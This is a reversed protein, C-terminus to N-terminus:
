PMGCEALLGRLTTDMQVSYAKMKEIAKRARAQREFPELKCSKAYTKLLTSIIHRNPAVHHRDTSVNSDRQRRANSIEELRHFLHDAHEVAEPIHSALKMWAHLSANFAFAVQRGDFEDLALLKDLYLEIELALDNSANTKGDLVRSLVQIIAGYMYFSPKCQQFGAKYRDTCEKLYSRALEDRDSRQSHILTSIVTAYSAADPLVSFSSSENLDNMLQLISCARDYPDNRGSQAKNSGHTKRSESEWASLVVNFSALDPKASENGGEQYDLLMKNLVNEARSPNGAQAWAHILATYAKNSPRVKSKGKEYRNVMLDFINQARLAASEGKSRGWCAITSTFAQETPEIGTEDPNSDFRRILELLISEARQPANNAHINQTRSLTTIVTYFDDMSLEFAPVEGEQHRQQYHLLSKLIIEARDADEANKGTSIMRLLNSVLSAKSPSESTDDGGSSANKNREVMESLFSSIKHGKEALTLKDSDAWAKVVDLIIRNDPGEGSELRMSSVLSQARDADGLRTWARVLYGYVQNDPHFQGENQTWLEEQVLVKGALELNLPSLSKTLCEIYARWFRNSPPHWPNTVNKKKGTIDNNETFLSHEDSLLPNHKDDDGFSTFANQNLPFREEEELLHQRISRAKSALEDGKNRTNDNDGDDHINSRSLILMVLEAIKGDPKVHIQKTVRRELNQTWLAWALEGYAGSEEQDMANLLLLLMNERPLLSKGSTKDSGAEHWQQQQQEEHKGIMEQYLRFLLRSTGTLPRDLGTNRYKVGHQRNALLIGNMVHFYTTNNPRLHPIEWMLQLIRVHTRGKDHCRLHKLTNHMTDISQAFGDFLLSLQQQDQQQQQQQQQAEVIQELRTVVRVGTITSSSPPTSLLLVTAASNTSKITTTVTTTTATSDVNMTHPARNDLPVFRTWHTVIEPPLYPQNRQLWTRIEELTPPGVASNTSNNADPQQQPQPQYEVLKAERRWCDTMSHAVVLPDEWVLSSVLPQPTSLAYGKELHHHVFPNAGNWNQQQETQQPLQKQPQPPSPPLQMQQQQEHFSRELLQLGMRLPSIGAAIPITTTSFPKQEHQQQQQQQQQQKMREQQLQQLQKQKQSAAYLLWWQVLKQAERWHLRSNNWSKSHHLLWETSEVCEMWKEENYETPIYQHRNRGTRSSAVFEERRRRGRRFPHEGGGYRRCSTIPSSISLGISGVGGVHHRLGACDGLFSSPSLGLVVDHHVSLQLQKQWRRQHFVRHVVSLRKWM